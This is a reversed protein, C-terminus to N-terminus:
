FIYHLQTAYYAFLAIVSLAPPETLASVAMPAYRHHYWYYIVEDIATRKFISIRQQSPVSNKNKMIIIKKKGGQVKERGEQLKFIDTEDWM